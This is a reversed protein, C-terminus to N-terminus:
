RRIGVLPMSVQPVCAGAQLHPGGLRVGRQPALQLGQGVLALGGNHVPPQRHPSPAGPCAHAASSRVRLLGASLLRQWLPLAPLM